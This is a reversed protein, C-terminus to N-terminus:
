TLIWSSATDAAMEAPFLIVGLNFALMGHQAGCEVSGLLFVATFQMTPELGSLKRMQQNAQHDSVWMIPASFCRGCTSHGQADEDVARATKERRWLAIRKEDDPLDQLNTFSKSPFLNPGIKRGVDILEKLSCSCESCTVLQFLLCVGFLSGMDLFPFSIAACTILLPSVFVKEHV